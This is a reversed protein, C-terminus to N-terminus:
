KKNKILGAGWNKINLLVTELSRGFDTLQYEVRPPIEPYIKRSILQDKELERLRMSLMKQTVGPLGKQLESFRKIGDSLLLNLIQIKWKGGICDLAHQVPCKKSSKNESNKRESSPM